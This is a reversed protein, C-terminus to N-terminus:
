QKLKRTGYIDSKGISYYSSEYNYGPLLRPYDVVYYMYLNQITNVQTLNQTASIMWPSFAHCRVNCGEIRVRRSDQMIAEWQRPMIAM